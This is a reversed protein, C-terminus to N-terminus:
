LAECESLGSAAAIPSISPSHSTGPALAGQALASKALADQALTDGFRPRDSGRGIM